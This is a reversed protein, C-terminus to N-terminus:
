APDHQTHLAALLGAIPQWRLDLEAALVAQLEHHFGDLWDATDDAGAEATTRLHAFRKELLAPLAALLRREHEGLVHEMVEDVAALAAMDASQAALRARLSARLPEIASEMAIQRGQYHRRYPAFETRTDLVPLPTASRLHTRTRPNPKDPAWPLEDQLSAALAKHVRHAQPDDFPLNPVTSARGAPSAPEPSNQLATFLSMADTWRLWDSLRDAFTQPTERVDFETLRALLRILASDTWGTRRTVQVM